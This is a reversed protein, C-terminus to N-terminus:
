TVVQRYSLGKGCRAWHALRILELRQDATRPHLLRVSGDRAPRRLEVVVSVREM